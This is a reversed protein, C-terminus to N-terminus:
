NLCSQLDIIWIVRFSKSFMCMYVFTSILLTHFGIQRIYQSSVSNGYPLKLATMRIQFDRPAVCNEAWSCQVHAWMHVCHLLIKSFVSKLLIHYKNIIIKICAFILINEFFTKRVFWFLNIFISSIVHYWRDYLHFYNNKTANM